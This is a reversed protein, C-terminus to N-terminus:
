LYKNVLETILEELNDCDITELIIDDKLTSHSIPKFVKNFEYKITQEADSKSNRSYSRTGNSTALYLSSVDKYKDFIELAINLKDEKCIRDFEKKYEKTLKYKEFNDKRISNINEIIRNCISNIQTNNLKIMKNIKILIM